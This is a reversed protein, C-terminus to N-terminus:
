RRMAGSLLVMTGTASPVAALLAAAVDAAKIPKYNPPILVGLLRSLRAGWDEGPRSPQGLEARAGVLLSPRAIVLGAFPLATLDNELEGKVRSYFIRSTADAGMASVLGVRRTGSALAAKAIALNADHDIARFAAQSGATKITTGLALYLEDASPLSPLAAFDVVHATLKPSVVPPARRGLVHVHDIAPDALLGRLIERGVLGTAGAIIVTRNAM